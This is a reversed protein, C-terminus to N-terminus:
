DRKFFAGHEGKKLEAKLEGGSTQGKTLMLLICYVTGIFPLVIFIFVQLNNSIFEFINKFINCNVYFYQILLFCWMVIVVCALIKNIGSVSYFNKGNYFLTKYLPGTFKDELYDIHKEWSDQWRKSGCIVLFWAVSFIIGLLILYFDLYMGKATEYSASTVITIYGGLILVIFGWFFASRQWFKNIEFNRIEWAKQFAEKHLDKNEKNSLGFLEAYKEDTITPYKDKKKM